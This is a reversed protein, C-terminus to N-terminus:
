QKLERIKINRFWADDGHNQLSIPTKSEPQRILLDAVRPADKWRAKVGEIVAESDLQADVVKVGNLWHEVHKGRVVIKSENWQGVPKLQVGQPAVMDYLAGCSHTGRSRADANAANDTIQYEFGIVYDQGKDPRGKIPQDFSRQVSAEFREGPNPRHVFLHEQIRYKVGSNGGPSIRWDFRLEFDRFKRNSFLDETIRPRYRSRISGEEVTWANGAPVKRSPDDWGKLSKGDFLLTWGARREEYTLTNPQQGSLGAVSTLLLITAKM